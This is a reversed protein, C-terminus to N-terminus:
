FRVNSFSSNSPFYSLKTKVALETRKCESGVAIHRFPNATDPKASPISLLTNAM